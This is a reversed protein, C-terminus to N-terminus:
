KGVPRSVKVTGLYAVGAQTDTDPLMTLSLRYTDPPLDAPLDLDHEGRVIEDKQWLTTSYMEGVLPAQRSAVTHGASDNIALNFWWDARPQSVARWYFTVHLRDGPYIPTAPAHGFGRKYQDYGLLSIAGFDFAQTHQMGLAALTPPKNSRSVTIPPLTIYDRGDPLRLRENTEGDYLGVIRRYSGPPTGPRILLGHNDNIVDGVNWSDTPRSEGAPEADRQAVVQDHPDLLQVFVKYRHDPKGTARWILQLQTVEGAIPKLNWGRYGTLMINPGLQLNLGDASEDPARREPMVYVALRVNGHWQDLTKYGRSDMWGEIVRNPDAEQAAWYVAYVKTHQLLGNLQQNTEELQLPRQHPLPYIPLGGKYYYGFVEAQGPADLLIADGPQATATIFQAIARYDDRALAPDTYYRALAAGSLAGVLTLVLTIWVGGLLGRPDMGDRRPGIVVTTTPGAAVGAGALTPRPVVPSAATLAAAPELMGRAVLLSYAPSAILLFKLYADRFLGFGLMLALLAVAWLLPLLWALWPGAVETRASALGNEADKRAFLHWPLAGLLALVAFALPAILAPWPEVNAGYNGPGSGLLSLTVAIVTGASVAPARGPWLTLQRFATPMWPAFCALAVIMMLAGAAVRRWIQGERRTLALWFVYLLSLVAIMLPFAYHTYLGAALILSLCVGWPSFLPLRRASGTDPPAGSARHLWAHEWQLYYVFFLAALASLLAVLIYMRTEQSYYVQFPALAAVFAAALGTNANYLTRALEAIVLVLLVGMLASLSRLAVETYGFSQTWIHLLWYYLPPHIDQGADHAIQTFSRAALAASNGEDSWLSQAGLNYFRVGAALALIMLLVLSMFAFDRRSYKM